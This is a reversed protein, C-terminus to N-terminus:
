SSRQESHVCVIPESNIYGGHDFIYIYTYISYRSIDVIKDSFFFNTIQATSIEKSTTQKSTTPAKLDYEIRKIQMQFHKQM